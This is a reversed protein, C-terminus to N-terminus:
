RGVQWVILVIWILWPVALWPWVFALPLVVMSVWFSVWLLVGVADLFLGRSPGPNFALPARAIFLLADRM